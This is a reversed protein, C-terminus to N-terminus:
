PGGGGGHRAMGVNGDQAGELEQGVGQSPPSAEVVGVGAGLDAAGGGAEAQAAGQEPEVGVGSDVHGPAQAFAGDDVVDGVVPGAETLGFPEAAEGDGLVGGQAAASVGDDDAGLGQEVELAIESVAQVQDRVAHVGGVVARDLPGAGQGAVGGTPGTGDEAVGAADVGVADIDGQDLGQGAGDGVAGDGEDAWIHQGCGVAGVEVGEAVDLHGPGDGISTDRVIHPGEVDADSGVAHRGEGLAEVGDLEPLVQGAAFGDDAGVDGAEAVVRLVDAEGGGGLGEDGGAGICEGFVACEGVGSHDFGGAVGPGRSKVVDEGDQSRQAPWLGLECM